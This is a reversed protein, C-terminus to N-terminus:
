EVDNMTETPLHDEKETERRYTGSSRPRPVSSRDGASSPTRWEWGVLKNYTGAEECTAEKRPRKGTEYRSVVLM